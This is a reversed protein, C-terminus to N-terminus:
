DLLDAAAAKPMAARVAKSLSQAKRNDGILIGGSLAGNLFYLKKYVMGDPSRRFLVTYREPSEARGLDGVSFVTTGFANLSAPYEEDAFVADGGAANAGAVAGQRVAPMWLCIYRHFESVDGCAYIGPINTEMRENVVVGRNVTIGCQAALPSNARVGISFIVMDVPIERGSKLKVASVTEGGALSEAYDDLFLPCKASQIISKLLKSGDADLQIPLIREAMEVVCVEKGMGLLVDAMELGLLGGGIVMVRETHELARRVSGADEFTRIAFVNGKGLAGPIPVFPSSGNALILRDFSFDRGKVTRAKGAGPIIEAVREDRVLTIGNERYWEERNLLFSPSQEVKGDIALKTLLPRYYPLHKEDTIVTIKAAPNVRRIEKAASIGAASAGIILIDGQFIDSPDAM